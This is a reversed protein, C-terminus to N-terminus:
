KFISEFMKNYILKTKLIQTDFFSDILDWKLISNLTWNENVSKQFLFSFANSTQCMDDTFGALCSCQFQNIADNCTGNNQCPNSACEDVDSVYVSDSCGIGVICTSQHSIGATFYFIEFILIRLSWM